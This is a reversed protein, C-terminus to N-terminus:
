PLIDIPVHFNNRVATPYLAPIESSLFWWYVISSAITGLAATQTMLGLLPTSSHPRNIASGLALSFVVHYLLFMLSGILTTPKVAEKTCRKCTEFIAQIWGNARENRNTPTNEDIISMALSPLRIHHPSKHIDLGPNHNHKRSRISSKPTMEVTDKWSSFALGLLPATEQQESHSAFQPSSDIQSNPASFLGMMYSISGAPAQIDARAKNIDDYSRLTDFSQYVQYQPINTTVSQEANPESEEKSPTRQPTESDESAPPAFLGLLNSAGENSEDKGTM